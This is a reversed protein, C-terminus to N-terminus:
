RFPNWERADSCAVAQWTSGNCATPILSRISTASRWKAHGDAFAINTGDLHPAFSDYNSSTPIAQTRYTIPSAYGIDWNLDTVVVTETSRVLSAMRIPDQPQLQANADDMYFRRNIAFFAESMGYSPYSKGAAPAARRANPCIFIQISKTYPYIFDMWTIGQATGPGYNARFFFGPMTPDTQAQHGGTPTRQYTRPYTEDYDQAYQIIGLGIQKLNSMCSARRANERARAFVPFLISALISIIAIVVLLEILTFGQIRTRKM